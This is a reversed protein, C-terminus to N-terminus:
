LEPCKREAKDVITNCLAYSHFLQSKLIYCAIKLDLSKDDFDSLVLYLKM